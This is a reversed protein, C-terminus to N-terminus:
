RKQKKAPRGSQAAAEDSDGGASAASDDDSDGGASAASAAGAEDDSDAEENLNREALQNALGVLNSIDQGPRLGAAMARTANALQGLAHKLERNRAVLERERAESEHWNEIAESLRRKQWIAPEKGSETHVLDSCQQADATDTADEKTNATAQATAGAAARDGGDSLM